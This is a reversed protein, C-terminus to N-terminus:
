IASKILLMFIYHLSNFIFLKKLKSNGSSVVADDCRFIKFYEEYGAISDM